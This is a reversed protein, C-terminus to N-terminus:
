KELAEFFSVRGTSVDYFGGILKVQGSEILENLKNSDSRIKGMTKMVNLKAILDVFSENSSDPKKGKATELDVIEAIPRIITDLNDCGTFKLAKTKESILQITSSVAGCKSHGMVVILKAGAVACGYEMSGLLKSSIINGAVRVSFIDGLGM